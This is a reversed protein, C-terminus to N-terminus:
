RFDPDPANDRAVSALGGAPLIGFARLMMGAAGSATGARGTGAPLEPRFGRDRLLAAVECVLQEPDYTQLQEGREYARRLMAGSDMDEHDTTPILTM